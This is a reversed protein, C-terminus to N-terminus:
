STCAGWGRLLPVTFIQCRSSPHPDIWITSKAASHKAKRADDLPRILKTLKDGALFYPESPV